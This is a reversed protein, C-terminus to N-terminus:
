QKSAHPKCKPEYICKNYTKLFPLFDKPDKIDASCLAYKELDSTRSLDIQEPMDQLAKKVCTQYTSLIPILQQNSSSVDYFCQDVCNIQTKTLPLGLEANYLVLTSFAAGGM